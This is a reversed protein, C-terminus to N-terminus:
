PGKHGTSGGLITTIVAIVFAALLTKWFGGVELTAFDTKTSLWSALVLMAWNIILSFLGLTLLRIPLTVVRVLPKVLINVIVLIVAVGLFTLARGWWSGNGGYVDVDLGLKTVIWVALATVALRWVIRMDAM